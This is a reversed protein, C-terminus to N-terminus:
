SICFVISQVPKQVGLGIGLGLFALGLLIAVISVYRIFLGIERILPPTADRSAGADSTLGAIQGMVTNDGTGVVVGRGHGSVVITSFFLLNSAEIAPTRPGSPATKIAIAVADGAPEGAGRNSPTAPAVSETALGSAELEVGREQAESEGTLASNDVQLNYAAVVRLDAPVQDGDQF